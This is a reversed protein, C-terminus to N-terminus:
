AAGRHGIRSDGNEDDDGTRSARPLARETIAKGGLVRLKRADDGRRRARGSRALDVAQVVVKEGGLLEVGAQVYEHPGEADQRFVQGMYGYAVPSGAM